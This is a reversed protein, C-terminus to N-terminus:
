LNESFVNTFIRLVRLERVGSKGYKIDDFIFFKVNGSFNSKEKKRLFYLSGQIKLLM